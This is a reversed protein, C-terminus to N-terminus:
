VENIGTWGDSHMLAYWIFNNEPENDIKSPRLMIWANATTTTLGMYTEDNFFIMHPSSCHITVSFANGRAKKVVIKAGAISGGPLQLDLNVQSYAIITPNALTINHSALNVNTQFIGPSWQTLGESGANDAHLIEGDSDVGLLKVGQGEFALYGLKLKNNDVQVPVPSGTGADIAETYVKTTEIDRAEIPKIKNSGSVVEWLTEIPLLNFLSQMANNIKTRVSSGGEGNNINTWSM